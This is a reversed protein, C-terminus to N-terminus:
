RKVFRYVLYMLGFPIAFIFCILYFFVYIGRNGVGEAFFSKKRFRESLFAAIVREIVYKSFPYVIASVAFLGYNLVMDSVSRPANFGVSYSYVVVCLWVLGWSLNAFYYKKTMVGAVM